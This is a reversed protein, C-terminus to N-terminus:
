DLDLVNRKIHNPTDEGPRVLWKMSYYLTILVIVTIVGVILYDWNSDPGAGHAVGRLVKPQQKECVPCAWGTVSLLVLLLTSVAGKLCNHRGIKM